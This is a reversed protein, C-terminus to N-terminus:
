ENGCLHERFFGETITSVQSGTDLLCSVLVGKIKLDVMPCTGVARELFRDQSTGEPPSGSVLGQSLSTAYPWTHHGM